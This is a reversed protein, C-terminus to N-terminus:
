KKIIKVKTVDIKEVSYLQSLVKDNKTLYLKLELDNLKQVLNKKTKINLTVNLPNSTASLTTSKPTLNQKYTHIKQGKQDYFEVVAILKNIDYGSINTIKFSYVIDFENRLKFSKLRIKYNEFLLENGMLINRQMYSTLRSLKADYLKSKISDKTYAFQMKLSFLLRKYINFNVISPNTRSVKEFLDVAEEPKSDIYLLALKYLVIPTPNYAKAIELTEIAKTINNEQVYQDALAVHTDTMATEAAKKLSNNVKKLYFLSHKYKNIANLYEGDNTLVDGYNKYFQGKEFIMSYRASNPISDIISQAEKYKHQMLYANALRFSASEYHGNRKILAVIFEKEAQPYAEILEYLQGLKLNLVPNRPNAEIEKKYRSILYGVMNNKIAYEEESIYEKVHFRSWILIASCVICILVVTILMTRFYSSLIVKIDKKKKRKYNSM